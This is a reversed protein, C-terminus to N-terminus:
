ETEQDKGHQVGERKYKATMHKDNEEKLAKAAQNLREQNEYFYAKVFDKPLEQMKFLNIYSEDEFDQPDFITLDDASIEGSTYDKTEDVFLEAEAELAGVTSQVDKDYDLMISILKNLQGSEIFLNLLDIATDNSLKDVYFSNFEHLKHIAEDTLGTYECVYALNNNVTPSKVRGLLYDTSVGFLESYKVLYDVSIGLAGSYHKTITSPDCGLKDAIQERTMLLGDLLDRFRLLDVGHKKMM